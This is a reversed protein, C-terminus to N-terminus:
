RAELEAVKASLEQIAKVLVPVLRGYTAELKESNDRLTLALTDHANYADEVEALDQAIFGMDKDGVRGGDRMNWEFEVPRLQNILDLGHTLDVINTKDREDSLSTITTVQCRLSTISSNGLTIQNSVSSTSASAGNGIMTNNSGSVVTGGSNNGVATNREGTTNDILAGYGVACNEIGTTNRALASDGVATVRSATTNAALARNGIAVNRDGDTSSELASRGVAVNFDGITNSELASEGVAVNFYGDTSSELASRGVAVNFDGTTNVLLADVGVATNSADMRAFVGGIVTPTADPLTYEVEPLEKFSM